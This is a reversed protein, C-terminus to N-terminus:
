TGEEAIIDFFEKILSYLSIQEKDDTFFLKALYTSCM